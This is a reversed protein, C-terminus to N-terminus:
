FCRMVVNVVVEVSLYGVGFIHETGRERPTDIGCAIKADCREHMHGCPHDTTFNHVAPRRGFRSVRSEGEQGCENRAERSRDAALPRTLPPACLRLKRDLQM